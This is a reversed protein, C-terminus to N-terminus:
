ARVAGTLEFDRQFFARAADDGYGIPMNIDFVGWLLYVTDEELEASQNSARRIGRWIPVTAISSIRLDREHAQWNREFQVTAFSRRTLQNLAWM